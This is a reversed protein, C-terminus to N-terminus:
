FGKKKGWWTQAVRDAALITILPRIRSFKNPAWQMEQMPVPRQPQMGKSGEQRSCEWLVAPGTQTSGHSDLDAYTDRHMSTM